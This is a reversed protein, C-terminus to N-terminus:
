ISKLIKQSLEWSGCISEMRRDIGSVKNKLHDIAANFAKKFNNENAM